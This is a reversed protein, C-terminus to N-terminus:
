MKQSSGTKRITLPLAIQHYDSRHSERRCRHSPLFTGTSQRSM